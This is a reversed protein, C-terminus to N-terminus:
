ATHRQRRVTDLDILRGGAVPEPQPQTTPVHIRAYIRHRGADGGALAIRKGAQQIHGIAALARAAADLEPHTGILWVELDMAPM